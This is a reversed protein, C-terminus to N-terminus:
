TQGNGRAARDPSNTRRTSQAIRILALAATIYRFLRPGALLTAAGAILGATIDPRRVLFRMTMSRPYDDNAATADELRHAFAERQLQMQLRLTKRQEFLSMERTNKM